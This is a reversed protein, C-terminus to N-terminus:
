IVLLMSRRTASRSMTPALIIVDVLAAEEDLQTRFQDFYAVQLKTGLRVTGEDAALGGLILRLLTTKGAGNPGIVGIRDGRQLRISFDRVIKKDGFCKSVDILEAVLKGSKEGADLALEVKGQRDRRAARDRRLQELRRVRGENRTRRAEIGKRIWVEEQALYKDFKANLVTEDLLMSEKRTQYASFNGPFSQLMGRDLELIRTAVRDLFRRDHTIFVMAVGLNVANRRAM